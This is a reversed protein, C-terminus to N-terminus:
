LDINPTQGMCEAYSLEEIMQAFVAKEESNELIPKQYLREIDAYWVMAIYDVFHPRLGNNKLNTITTKIANITDEKSIEKQRAAAVTLSGQSIMTCISLRTEEDIAPATQTNANANSMGVLVSTMLFPLALTRIFATM